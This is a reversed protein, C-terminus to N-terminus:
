RLVRWDGQRYFILNRKDTKDPSSFEVLLYRPGRGNMSPSRYERFLGRSFLFEWDLTGCRIGASYKGQFSARWTDSDVDWAEIEFHNELFRVRYDVATTQSLKEVQVLKLAIQRVTRNLRYERGKLGAIVALIILPPIITWLLFRRPKFKSWM